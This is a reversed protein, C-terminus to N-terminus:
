MVADVDVSLSEIRTNKVSIYEFLIFCVAMDLSNLVLTFMDNSM